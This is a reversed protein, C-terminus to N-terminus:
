SHEQLEAELWKLQDEAMRIQGRLGAISEQQRKIEREIFNKYRENALSTQELM